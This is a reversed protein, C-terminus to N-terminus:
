QSIDVVAFETRGKECKPVAHTQQQLAREGIYSPGSLRESTGSASTSKETSSVFTCWWGQKM